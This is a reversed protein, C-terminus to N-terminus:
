GNTDGKTIAKDRIDRWGSMVYDGEGASQYTPILEGLKRKKAEQKHWEKANEWAERLNNAFIHPTRFSDSMLFTYERM